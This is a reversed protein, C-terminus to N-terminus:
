YGKTLVLIGEKSTRINEYGKFYNNIKQYFLILSINIRILLHMFHNEEWILIIINLKITNKTLQIDSYGIKFGTVYQLIGLM